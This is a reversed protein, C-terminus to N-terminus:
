SDRKLKEAVCNKTVEAIRAACNKANATDCGQKPGCFQCYQCFLTIEVLQDYGFLYNDYYLGVYILDTEWQMGILCQSIGTM